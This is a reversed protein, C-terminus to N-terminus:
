LNKTPKMQASTESNCCDFKMCCGLIFKESNHVWEQFESFNAGVSFLGSAILYNTMWPYNNNNGIILM